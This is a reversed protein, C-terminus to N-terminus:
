EAEKKRSSKGCLFDMENGSILSVLKVGDERSGEFERSPLMFGEEESSFEPETIRAVDPKFRGELRPCLRGNLAVFCMSIGPRKGSM